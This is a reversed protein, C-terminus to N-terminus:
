NFGWEFDPYIEPGSERVIVSKEMRAGVVRDPGDYCAPEICFVMGAQIITEDFPVLRPLENVSTGIQHGAYQAIEFGHKALTAKAAEFAECAKRGPRLAEAAAYFAEIAAKGYQQQERTPEAGGVVLTNTNDAWYGDIRVSIDMLALDGTKTVHGNPGGPYSRGWPAGGMLEGTVFLPRGAHEQMSKTVATWIEWDSKGVHQAQKLLERHGVANVEAAARLLRIERETKTLRAADLHESADVLEVDPFEEKLLQAVLHPLSRDEVALRARGHDLGAKKFTGRLSELFNERPTVKSFQGFTEHVLVEDVAGQQKAWGGYFGSVLLCSFPENVGFFALCPGYAVSALAGFDIPVEFHSVHTVNESTSVLAWDAGLKKLNSRARDMEENVM